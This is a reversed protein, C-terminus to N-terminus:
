MNQGSPSKKLIDSKSDGAINVVNDPKPHCGAYMQRGEKYCSVM